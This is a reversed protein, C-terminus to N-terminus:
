QAAASRLVTMSGSVNVRLAPPLVLRFLGWLRAKMRKQKPVEQSSVMRDQHQAARTVNIGRRIVDQNKGM